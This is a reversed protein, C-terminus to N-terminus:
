LVPPRFGFVEDLAEGFDLLRDEGYWPGVLQVGAPLGDATQGAPVALAPLHQSTALGIWRILDPYPTVVGDVDLVREHQPLEVDHPFAPVMAVPSLIADWGADFFARLERKFGARRHLAAEWREDAPASQFAVNLLRFYTDLMEDFPIGLDAPVVEVGLEALAAAAREVAIRCERSLPFGPQDLLLGVRRGAIDRRAAPPVGTLVGQLLRIDDATRAMPGVVNLDRPPVERVGPDPPLHGGQPLLNWTPKLAYIGCFNAPVRLSGGIDSGIELPSIGSAVAAASGGSSGGATRTVDYPNNTAGFVENTSQWDWLNMSVNTKGWIVAGAARTVAVVDADPCDRPRGVWAPNGVVAPMGEVDFGDKVTIPLGALPGLADGAARARDVAAADREARELDREVVVNLLPALVRDRELHLDLLERATIRGSQLEALQARASALLLDPATM